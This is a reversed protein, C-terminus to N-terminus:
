DELKLSKMLSFVIELKNCGLEELTMDEAIRFSRNM